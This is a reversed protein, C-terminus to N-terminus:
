LVIQAAYWPWLFPTSTLHLCALADECCGFGSVGFLEPAEDCLLAGCLNEVDPVLLAVAALRQVITQARSEGMGM